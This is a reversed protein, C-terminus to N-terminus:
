LGVSLSAAQHADCSLWQETKGLDDPAREKVLGALPNAADVIEDGVQTAAAVRGNRAQSDPHSPALDEDWDTLDGFEAWTPYPQPPLEHVQLAELSPFAFQEEAMVDEMALDDQDLGTAEDGHRVDRDAVQVM